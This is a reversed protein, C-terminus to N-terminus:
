PLDVSLVQFAGWGPVAKGIVELLPGVVELGPFAGPAYLAAHLAVHGYRAGLAPLQARRMFRASSWPAERLRRQHVLGWPSAPNLTGIALRGAPRTVRAMEARVLAADAVFELLTIAVTM